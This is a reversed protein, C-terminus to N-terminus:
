VALPTLRGSLSVEHIELDAAEDIGVHHLHEHVTLLRSRQTSSMGRQIALFPVVSADHRVTPADTALLGLRRRRDAVGNLIEAASEDEDFWRRILRAYVVVQLPAWQITGAGRPKVEIALLRGRRDLSLLDCEGGFSDPARGPIPASRAAALLDKSVERMIRSRTPADRFQLIFERDLMVRDSSDFSSVASQVAGEVGASGAATPPIVRDLYLELPGLWDAADDLATWVSWAESFGHESGRARHGELRVRGRRWHVDLVKETGVYLTARSADTKLDRRFQLDVPYPAQRAYETLVGLPGDPEFVALFDDGVRRDYRCDLANPWGPTLGDAM